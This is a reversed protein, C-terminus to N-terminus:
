GRLGRRGKRFRVFFVVVPLVWLAGPEPVADIAQIQAMYNAPTGFYDGQQQTGYTWATSPSSGVSVPNSWQFYVSGSDTHSIDFILTNPVLVDPVNFSILQLPGSVPINLSSSQWLLNGISGGPGTADWLKMQFTDGSDPNGGSGFVGISIQTVYRATGALTVTDGVEGAATYIAPGSTNDYVVTASARSNGLALMLLVVFAVQVSESFSMSSYAHQKM